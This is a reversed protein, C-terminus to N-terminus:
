PSAAVLEGGTNKVAGVGAALYITTAHGDALGDVRLVDFTGAEVTISTAETVRLDSSSELTVPGTVVGDISETLTITGTSTWATGVSLEPLVMRTDTFRLETWGTSTAGARDTRTWETYTRVAWLGKADCRHEWTVHGVQEYTSGHAEEDAESVVRGTEPEWVTQTSTYGGGLYYAWTTTAGVDRVNTYPGCPPVVPTGTDGGSDRSDATEGSDAGTEGSDSGSEGSDVATDAGDTQHPPAACGLALLM